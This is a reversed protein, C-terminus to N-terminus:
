YYGLGPTPRGEADFFTANDWHSGQGWRTSCRTSIWAPEWYILGEAGGRRLQQELAQLYSLQGAPTAPYGPLLADEGLLNNAPDLNKLSFPYATEVVMVRKSHRQRLTQIAQPLEELGYASWKPYYSLGIWHYDTLGQETAQEFWWLANEPQAIHLMVQLDQELDRAADRAAQLGRQLLAANRPWDLARDEEWDPDQLVEINTENGIQVFAPFLGRGHLYRLVRYTYQYVSDGLAATDNVVARWAAPVHQRQPDAWEDSYHFDLLVAMGQAQARAMALTVDTLDSYDTWDPRHWLRVRMLDCGAQAFLAYPDTLTGATDRYEGGCDLMENVYSLDAGRWFRREVTPRPEKEETCALLLIPLLLYLPLRFYM